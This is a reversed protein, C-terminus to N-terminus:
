SRRRPPGALSKAVERACKIFREVVPSLTRNKLTAILLPWPRDPLDVPLAILGYPEAYLKLTSNAFETIYPGSALLHVRLPVFRTVLSAKPMNLGRAHFAAALVTSTWTQPEALLWPENVLEALDIKRRRAWPNQSSTVVLLRDNFLVEVNLEEEDTLAPRVLRALILDCSRNRLAERQLAPSPMDEVRLVVRPHLESFRRIIPLLVAISLSDTSGIRLEGVTPDALFEIDRSSQKLEDFAAVSRKLLATGYVTLEVGQPSRDLLRVGFTHELEAIVESVTPQSVRLQAAAKAMSGCSVVTSFVRLHRLKLRRGIGSEWDTQRTM